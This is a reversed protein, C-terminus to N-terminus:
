DTWIPRFSKAVALARLEDTELAIKQALMVDGPVLPENPVFCWGFKPHGYQDLEYVNAATGYRIRYRKGSQCGTVEFCEHKEFQALQEASLWERLLKIGRRERESRFLERYYNRLLRWRGVCAKQFQFIMGFM